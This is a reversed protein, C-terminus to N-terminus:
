FIPSNNLLGERGKAIGDNRQRTKVEFNDGSSEKYFHLFDRKAFIDCRSCDFFFLFHMNVISLQILTLIFFAPMIRVNFCIWFYLIKLIFFKVM